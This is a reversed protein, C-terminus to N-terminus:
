FFSSDVRAGEFFFPLFRYAAPLPLLIAIGQEIGFEAVDRM